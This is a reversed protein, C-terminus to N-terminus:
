CTLVFPWRARSRLSRLLDSLSYIGVSLCVYVGWAASVPCGASNTWFIQYQCSNAPPLEIGPGAGGWRNEARPLNLHQFPLAACVCGAWAGSPRVWLDPSARNTSIGWRDWLHEASVGLVAHHGPQAVRCCRVVSGSIVSFPQERRWSRLLVCRREHAPVCFMRRSRVPDHHLWCTTPGLGRM